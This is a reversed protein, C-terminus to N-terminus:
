IITQHQTDHSPSPNTTTRPPSSFCRRRQCCPCLAKTFDLDANEAAEDAFHTWNPGPQCFPTMSAPPPPTCLHHQLLVGPMEAPIDPYQAVPTPDADAARNNNHTSWSFLIQNHNAFILKRPVWLKLALTTVRDIVSQPAPLEIFARCKIVLSTM